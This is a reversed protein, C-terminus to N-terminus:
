GSCPSPTRPPDQTGSARQSCGQSCHWRHEVAQHRQLISAIGLAASPHLLQVALVLPEQLHHGANDQGAAEALCVEEEEVQEQGEGEEEFLGDSSSSPGPDQKHQEIPLGARVLMTDKSPIPPLTSTPVQGQCCSWAGM